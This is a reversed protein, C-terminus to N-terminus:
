QWLLWAFDWQWLCLGGREETAAQLLIFDKRYAKQVMWYIEVTHHYNELAM